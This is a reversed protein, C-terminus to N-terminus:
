SFTTQGRNESPTRRWIRVASRDPYFQKCYHRFKFIDGDAKNLMPHEHYAKNEWIMFDKGIKKFEYMVLPLMIQERLGKPVLNLTFSGAPM